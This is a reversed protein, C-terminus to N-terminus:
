TNVEALKPSSILSKCFGLRKCYEKSRNKLIRDIISPAQRDCYDQSFFAIKSCYFTSQREYMQRKDETRLAHYIGDFVRKCRECASQQGANELFQERYLQIQEQNLLHPCDIVIGYCVDPFENFRISLWGFQDRLRKFLWRCRAARGEALSVCATYLRQSVDMGTGAFGDLPEAIATGFQECFICFFDKPTRPVGTTQSVLTLVLISATFLRM